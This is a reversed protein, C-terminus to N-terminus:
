SIFISQFRSLGRKAPLPNISYTMEPKVRKVKLKGNDNNEVVLWSNSDCNEAQLPSLHNATPSFNFFITM